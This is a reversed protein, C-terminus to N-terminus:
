AQAGGINVANETLSDLAATIADLTALQQAHTDLVVTLIYAGAAEPAILIVEHPETPEYSGNIRKM